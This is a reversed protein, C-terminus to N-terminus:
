KLEDELVYIWWCKEIWGFNREVRRQNIKRIRIKKKWNIRIGWIREVFGLLLGEKRIKVWLFDEEM